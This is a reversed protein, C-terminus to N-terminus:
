LQTKIIACDLANTRKKCHAIAMFHLSVPHDMERNWMLFHELYALSKIDERAKQPIPTKYNVPSLLSHQPHLQEAAPTNQPENAGKHYILGAEPSCQEWTMKFTFTFTIRQTSNKKSVKYAVVKRSFLDLIVCTYLYRERLQFYAVDSVWIQNPKGAHFQQRFVNEKKEAERLKLYDRKASTPVGIVGMERMLDAAFKTSVQYERQMLITRIKEAGLVQHYEEFGVGHVCPTWGFRGNFLTFQVM